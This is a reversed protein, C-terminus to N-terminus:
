EEKRKLIVDFGLGNAYDILSKVSPNIKGTEWKQIANHHYGIKHSVALLSLNLNKRATRLEAIIPLIM